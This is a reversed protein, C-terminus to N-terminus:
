IPRPQMRPGPLKALEAEKEKFARAVAAEAARAAQAATAEIQYQLQEQQQKKEVMRRTYWAKECRESCCPVEDNPSYKAYNGYCRQKCVDCFREKGVTPM